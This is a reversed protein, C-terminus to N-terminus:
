RTITSRVDAPSGELLEDPIEVGEPIDFDEINIKAM